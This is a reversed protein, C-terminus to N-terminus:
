QFEDISSENRHNTDLGKYIKHRATTVTECTQPCFATKRKQKHNKHPPSEVPM